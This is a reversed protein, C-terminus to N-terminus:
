KKPDLDRCLIGILANKAYMPPFGGGCSADPDAKRRNKGIAAAGAPAFVSTTRDSIRRM